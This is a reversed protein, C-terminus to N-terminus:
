SKKPRRKATLDKTPGGSPPKYPPISRKARPMARRWATSFRDNLRFRAYDAAHAADMKGINAAQWDIAAMAQAQQSMTPKHM